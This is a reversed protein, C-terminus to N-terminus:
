LLDFKEGLEKLNKRVDDRGVEGRLIGIIGSPAFLVTVMILVGILPLYFTSSGLFVSSLRQLLFVLLGGFIPGTLTGLGGLLAMIVMRDTIIPALVDNPHIFVIYWAYVSGFTAAVVCSLVYVQRKVRTTDIGLSEAADQDDRLAKVRYGFEHREFLYYTLLMTATCLVLMVYYFFTESIAFPVAIGIFTDPSRPLSLGFTGGTIELILAAQKLSEALAWTAIAFYAGTLRLTPVAVLYALVAAVVIALAFGVVFPYGFQVMAIGAAFGGIGFYAGHGFDLYGAYGGIMNWSQALGIWMLAGLGIRAWFSGFLFPWALLLVAIAAFWYRQDGPLRGIVPASASM